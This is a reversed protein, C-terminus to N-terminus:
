RKLSTKKVAAEAQQQKNPVNRDIWSVMDLWIRRVEDRPPM